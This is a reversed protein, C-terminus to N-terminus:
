DRVKPAGPKHTGLEPIKYGTAVELAFYEYSYANNEPSVPPYSKGKDIDDCAGANHAAEHLVVPGAPCTAKGFDPFLTIESGPCPAQGCLDVVEKGAKAKKGKKACTYTKSGVNARIHKYREIITSKQDSGLSGFHTRMASMEFSLPIDREFAQLASSALGDAQEIAENIRTQQDEDCGAFKATPKEKSGEKDDPNRQLIGTAPGTQQLVHTLEHALLARGEGTRPAYRGADFVIHNGLTYARADLERASEAARFDTHVRVSGFDASGKETMPTAASAHSAANAEREYQDDVPGISAVGSSGQLSRPYVSVSGFDHGFRQEMSARTNADLPRGDTRLVEEVIPPVASPGRGLAKRQLRKKRCEACEGSPGPTGGCACKRQLLNTRVPPVPESRVRPQLETANM